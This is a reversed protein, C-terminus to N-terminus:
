DNFRYFTFLFYHLINIVHEWLRLDEFQTKQGSTNLKFHYLVLFTYKLLHFSFSKQM